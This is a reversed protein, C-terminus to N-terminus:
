VELLTKRQDLGMVHLDSCETTGNQKKVIQIKRFVKQPAVKSHYHGILYVNNLFFVMEAKRSRKEVIRQKCKENQVITETM